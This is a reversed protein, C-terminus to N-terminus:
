KPLMLGENVVLLDLPIVTRKFLAVVLRLLRAGELGMVLILVVQSLPESASNVTLISSSRLVAPAFRCCFCYVVYGCLKCGKWEDSQEEGESSESREDCAARELSFNFVFYRLVGLCSVVHPCRPQVAVGRPALLLKVISLVKLLV